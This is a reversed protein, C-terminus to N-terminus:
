EGEIELFNLIEEAVQEDTLTSVYMEYYSKRLNEEMYDLPHSLYPHDLILNLLMERSDIEYQESDDISDRVFIRTKSENERSEKLLRNATKVNEAITKKM